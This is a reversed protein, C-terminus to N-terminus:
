PAYLAGIAAAFEGLKPFHPDMGTLPVYSELMRRLPAFAAVTTGIIVADKPMKRQMGFLMLDRVVTVAVTQLLSACARCLATGDDADRAKAFHAVVFEGQPTGAASPMADKVLIDFPESDMALAGVDRIDGVGLLRALGAIFGGGIANGLPFREVGDRTVFAYSTGTGISVLLFEGSPRGGRELLWRVGGAQLAIEDAIPDGDAERIAPLGAPRPGVGTVRASDVGDARMRAAAVDFSEPPLSALQLEEGKFWAAKVLTTGCDIGAKM